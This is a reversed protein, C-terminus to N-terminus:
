TWGNIDMIKCPPDGQVHVTLSSPLSEQLGGRTTVCLAHQTKFITSSKTTQSTIDLDSWIVDLYSIVFKLIKVMVMHTPRCSWIRPTIDHNRYIYCKIKLRQCKERLLVYQTIHTVVRTVALMGEAWM